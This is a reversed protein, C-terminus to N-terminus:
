ISRRKRRSFSGGWSKDFKVEPLVLDIAQITREAVEKPFSIASAVRLAIM